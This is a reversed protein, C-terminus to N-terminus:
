KVDNYIEEGNEMIATVECDSFEVYIEKLKSVFDKISANHVDQHLNMFKEYLLNGDIPFIDENDDYLENYLNSFVKVIAHKKNKAKVSCLRTVCCNITAIVYDNFKM